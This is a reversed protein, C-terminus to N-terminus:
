RVMRQIERFDSGSMSDLWQRVREEVLMTQTVVPQATKREPCKKEQQQAM